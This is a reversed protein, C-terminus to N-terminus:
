RKRFATAKIAIAPPDGYARIHNVSNILVIDANLSAAQKLIMIEASRELAQASRYHQRTQSEFRVDIDELKIMSETEGPERTLEVSRWDKVTRMEQPSTSLQEVAGTRYYISKVKGRDVWDTEMSGPQSVFVYKESIKRVEVEKEKGDFFVIWDYDSPVGPTSKSQKTKTSDPNQYITVAFLNIAIGQTLIFIIAILLRLM